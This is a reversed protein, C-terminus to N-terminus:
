LEKYSINITIVKKDTTILAYVINIGLDKMIRRDEALESQRLTKLLEAKMEKQKKDTIMSSNVPCPAAAYIIRYKYDATVTMGEPNTPANQTMEVYQRFQKDSTSDAFVGFCVGFMVACVLFIKKM